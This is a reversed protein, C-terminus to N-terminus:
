QDGPNATSAGKLSTIVDVIATRYTKLSDRSAKVAQQFASVSDAVNSSTCDVSVDLSQLASISAAANAGAADAAAVLTDYNQVTLGKSDHFTKVKTYIKDFVAKHNQARKVANNMRNTLNTKRANCAKQREAQTREKVQAKKDAVEQQALAKFHDRLTSSEASDSTDGTSDSSSSSDDMAHASVPVALVLGCFLVISLLTMRIRMVTYM